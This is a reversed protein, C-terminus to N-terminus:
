KVMIWLNGLGLILLVSASVVTGVIGGVNEFGKFRQEPAGSTAAVVICTIIVIASHGLSFWTGVTV